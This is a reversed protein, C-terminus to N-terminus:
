LLRAGFSGRIPYYTKLNRISVLIDPEGFPGASTAPPEVAPEPRM